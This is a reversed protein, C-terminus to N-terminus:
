AGEDESTLRRSMLRGWAERPSSDEYLIRYMEEVIPTEVGARAALERASRTTAVGEAVSSSRAVIEALKEGQALERGLRRNRSLEGTCTVILDGLGALGSFTTRRGGVALGLRTIEALGRTVVAALTNHGLGLGDLMGAAIAIVNKLAGAIQVGVVDPNTYLRLHGGSFGHQVARSLAEDESAVVLATPLGRAVEAAFSPGSVVAYPREVGLCARAADVPLALTGEEIGKTALVVPTRSEALHLKSYVGRAFQAPVVGVILQAEEAAEDLASTPQVLDPLEVGPLFVPNERAERMRQALDTERVWLRVAYGQRGLHVALATGWAGGGVIAVRRL